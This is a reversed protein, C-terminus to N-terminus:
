ADRSRTPTTRIATPRAAPRPGCPARRAAPARRRRCLGDGGPHLQPDLQGVVRRRHREGVLVDTRDAVVFRYRGDVHVVGLRPQVHAVAKMGLRRQHRTIAPPERQRRTVLHAAVRTMQPDLAPDAGSPDVVQHVPRRAARHGTGAQQGHAVEGGEHPRVPGVVRQVAATSRTSNVPTDWVHRKM